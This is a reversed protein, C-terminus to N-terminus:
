PTPAFAPAAAAAPLRLTVNGVAPTVVADVYHQGLGRAVSVRLAGNFDLISYRDEFALVHVPPLEYGQMQQMALAVWADRLTNGQPAFTADIAPLPETTAIIHAIAVAVVRATPPTAGRQVRGALVALEGVPTGALRARARALWGAREARRYLRAAHHQMQLHQYTHGHMM